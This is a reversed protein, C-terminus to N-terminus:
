DPEPDLFIEYNQRIPSWFDPDPVVSRQLWQCPLTRFWLFHKGESLPSRCSSRTPHPFNPSLFWQLSCRTTPSVTIVSDFCFIEQFPLQRYKWEQFNRKAKLTSFNKCVFVCVGDILAIDIYSAKWPINQNSETIVTDGAVRHQKHYGLVTSFIQFTIDSPNITNANQSTFCKQVSFAFRFKWSHFYLCNGKWHINQKSETIVTDGVVRHEKCHHREGFKERGVRQDQWEGKESPFCKRQNRVNGHRRSWRQEWVQKM